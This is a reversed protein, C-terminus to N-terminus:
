KRHWTASLINKVKRKFNFVLVSGVLPWTTVIAIYALIWMSRKQQRSLQMIAKVPVLKNSIDDSTRQKQVVHENSPGTKANVHAGGDSNCFTLDDESTKHVDIVKNGGFQSYVDTESNKPGVNLVTKGQTTAQMQNLLQRLVSQLVIFEACSKIRIEFISGKEGNSLKLQSYEVSGEELKPEQMFPTDTAAHPQEDDVGENEGSIKMSSKSPLLLEEMVRDDGESDMCINNDTSVMGDESVNLYPGKDISSALTSSLGSTQVKKQTHMLSSSHLVSLFEKVARVWWISGAMLGEFFALHGGHLTTALVINKNARCEDWPIAEKTCVPDDLANVCLLPVSVKSLFQASSCKRYYTDVTEFKGIRCTFYNDFDRISYSKKICEWDALRTVTSQHLQAYGRLGTTLIKGYLRQVFSRRIFRDCIVLDWPCCIAAGGALPTNEGEEGLYKVLINAGISTGVALLPAKPHENHVYAIINRLDETWGANYFRDSTISTGGLGRHNAVVTKWGQKALAYVIHKLYPDKSDSTLGPIVIVIPTEDHVSALTNLNAAGGVIDETTLWDLAVTGGDPPLFIQRRYQFMPPRGFFHLFATQLHPSCLWPTSWYRGKLIECKPLLHTAINSSPDYLLKVSNRRMGVLLDGILHMEMFNYLFYILISTLGVFYQWTSLNLARLILSPGLKSAGWEDVCDM